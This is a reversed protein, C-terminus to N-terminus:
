MATYCYCNKWGMLSRFLRKEKQAFKVYGIGHDCWPDGTWERVMYSYLLDVCNLAIEKELEDRSNFHSYIPRVSSGLADALSRTSLAAWGNERVFQFAADVIEAKTFKLKPPM